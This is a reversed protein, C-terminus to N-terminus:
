IEARTPAASEELLAKGALLFGPTCYGCQAAGLEAFAQQLPHLGEASEMGEITTIERRGLAAPIELCSLVPRGDVLVTCTGCEGLECGHKTGTLGLEERLVELLTHHLPATVSRTEGNVTLTLQVLGPQMLVLYIGGSRRAGVRLIPAVKYPHSAPALLPRRFIRTEISQAPQDGMGVLPHREIALPELERTDPGLVDAGDVVDGQERDGILAVQDVPGGALDGGRPEIRRPEDRGHCGPIRTLGEDDAPRAALLRSPSAAPQRIEDRRSQAGAVPHSGHERDALLPGVAYSEQFGQPQDALGDDVAGLVRGLDNALERFGPGVEEAAHGADELVQRIVQGDRLWGDTRTDDPDRALDQCGDRAPPDFGCEGRGDVVRVPRVLDPQQCGVAPVAPEHVDRRGPRDDLDQRRVVPGRLLALGALDHDGREIEERGRENSVPELVERRTSRRGAAAPGAEGRGRVEVPTRDVVGLHRVAAVEMGVPDQARCQRGRRPDPLVLQHLLAAGPDHQPEHPLAREVLGLPSSQAPRDVRQEPGVDAEPHLGNGPDRGGRTSFRPGDNREHLSTDDETGWRAAVTYRWLGDSAGSARVTARCTGSNSHYPSRARRRARGDSM